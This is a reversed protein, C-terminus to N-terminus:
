KPGLLVSTPKLSDIIRKANIAAKRRMEIYSEQSYYGAHPNIIVKGALWNENELWASIFESDKNPPEEPLVDLGIGLIKKEKIPNIFLDLNEVIKGRATNILYSGKKMQDIFKENVMCNTEENLVANISIIDAMAIFEELEEFKVASIVKDYGQEKYPDYFITKFGIANAKLLVSSGIRGAGIVGLTLSSTRRKHDITNEQWSNDSILKSKVDYESIGRVFNMAFAITTDSVEDIGYDPTNCLFLKRKKAEDFDINDTGVGYRVMGKLNSFNNLYDKDIIKHWVLLVEIETDNIDTAIEGLVEKEVDPNTIYDTIFVKGM